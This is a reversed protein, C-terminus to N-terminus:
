GTKSDTCAASGRDIQSRLARVSPETRNTMVVEGSGQTSPTSSGSVCSPYM